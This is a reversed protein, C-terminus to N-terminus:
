WTIKSEPVPINPIESAASLVRKGTVTTNGANMSFQGTIKAFGNVILVANGTIKADGDMVVRGRVTLAIAATSDIVADGMMTLDGYTVAIPSSLVANDYMELYINAGPQRQVTVKSNGRMILWNLTQPNAVVAPVYQANQDLYVYGEVIGNKLIANGGVYGSGKLTMDIVQAKGEIRFNGNIERVDAGTNQVLSHGHYNGGFVNRGLINFPGEIICDSYVVSDYSSELAGYDMDYVSDIHEVLMGYVKDTTRYLRYMGQVESSVLITNAENALPEGLQDMAKTFDVNDWKTVKADYYILASTPIMNCRDFTFTNGSARMTALDPFEVDSFAFNPCDNVVFMRRATVGFNGSSRQSEINSNRSIMALVHEKGGTMAGTYNVKVFSGFFKFLNVANSACEINMLSNLMTSKGATVSFRLVNDAVTPAGNYIPRITTNNVDLVSEVVQTVTINAATVADPTIPTEDASSAVTNRVMVVFAASDSLDITVGEGGTKWSTTALTIGNEDLKNVMVQYAANPISLKGAAGSWIMTKTRVRTASDKKMNLYSVGAYPDYFGQEYMTPVQAVTTAASEFSVVGLVRSNGRIVCAKMRAASRAIDSNMDVIAEDLVHIGPYELSGSFIWCNGEQSLTKEDYVYGGLDNFCVQRGQVMFSRLARIRKRGADNIIEYKNCM